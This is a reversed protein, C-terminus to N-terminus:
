IQEQTLRSTLIRAKERVKQIQFSTPYKIMIENYLSLAADPNGLKEECNALLMLIHDSATNEPVAEHLDSLVTKAMEIKGLTLYLQGATVGAMFRLNNEKRSLESFEEAALSLKKQFRLLEAHAFQSLSLSDKEAQKLLIQRSLIDNVMPDNSTIQSLLRSYITEAESFRATYFYTEAVKLWAANQMIGLTAERYAQLADETQNKTLYTDGVRLHVEDNQKGKTQVKLYRNYYLLAEDLDYYYRFYIDGQNIMCRGALDSRENLAILEKYLATAKEMIAASSASDTNALAAYSRALEYRIQLSAPPEPYHTLFYEYGKIAHVYAKNQYAELSFRQIFLGSKQKQDLFQYVTFALDYDKNKLYLGGLIERIQIDDPHGQLFRNIENTVPIIDKSKDSIFLLQRKIFAIQKPQVEYYALFNETAKEYNLQALYLNAIDVYLNEQNKLTKIAERYVQIAEDFLRVRIMAMAVLRFSTPDQRNNDLYTRWTGLARDRQNNLFYAEGLDIYLSSVPPATNTIQELFQILETYQQLGIFCKKIGAVSSMDHNNKKYLKQYLDLAERYQHNRELADATRLMQNPHQAFLPVSIVFFWILLLASIIKYSHLFFKM